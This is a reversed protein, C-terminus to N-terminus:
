RAHTNTTNIITLEESVVMIRYPCQYRKLGAKETQGPLFVFILQVEREASSESAEFKFKEAARVSTARLLPHGSIGKASSVEGNPSITAMVTVQGSARVAKAAPPYTPEAANIIKPSSSSNVSCIIAASDIVFDLYNPNLGKESIRIFARFKDPPLADSTVVYDGDNLPIQFEGNIDTLSSYEGNIKLPLGPIVTSNQDRVVGKLQYRFHDQQQAQVSVFFGLFCLYILPPIRLSFQNM